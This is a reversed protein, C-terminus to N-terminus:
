VERKREENLKLDELSYEPNHGERYLRHARTWCRPMDFHDQVNHSPNVQRSIIRKVSFIIFRQSGTPDKLFTGQNCTGVLSAVRTRYVETPQYPPRINIVNMSTYSKFNRRNRSDKLYDDIEDLVIILFRSLAIKSDKNSIDLSPNIHMYELMTGPLFSELFPTKGIGSPGQLILCHKSRYDSDFLTKVASVFWNKLARYLRNFEQEGDNELEIFSALDKFPDEGSGSTPLNRMWDKLPNYAPCFISTALLSKIVDRSVKIGKQLCEYWLDADNVVRYSTGPGKVRYEVRNAVENYRFDYKAQLFTDAEKIKQINKDLNANNM